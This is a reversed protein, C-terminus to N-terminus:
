AVRTRRAIQRTNTEDAPAPLPLGLREAAVRILKRTTTNCRAGDYVRKVTSPSVAAEAAIATYEISTFKVQQDSSGM